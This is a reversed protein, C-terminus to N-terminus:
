LGLENLLEAIRKYTKRNILKNELLFDLGQKVAGAFEGTRIYNTARLADFSSKLRRNFVIEAALKDTVSRAGELAANMEAFPFDTRGGKPSRLPPIIFYRSKDREQFKVLYASVLVSAPINGSYSAASNRAMVKRNEIVEKLKDSLEKTYDKIIGKQEVLTSMERDRNMRMSDVESMASEKAREYEDIAAQKNNLHTQTIGNLTKELQKRENDIEKVKSNIQSVQSKSKNLFNRIISKYKPSDTSPLNQLINRSDEQLPTIVGTLGLTSAEFRSLARYIAQNAKELDSDITSNMKEEITELKRDAEEQARSIKEAYETEIVTERDHIEGMWNQGLDRIIERIEELRNIEQISEIFMPNIRDEFSPLILPADIMGDQLKSKTLSLTSKTFDKNFIPYSNEELMLSENAEIVSETFASLSSADYIAKLHAEIKALSLDHINYGKGYLGLSDVVITRGEFTDFFVRWYLKSVQALRERSRKFLSGKKIIDGVVGVVYALEAEVPFQYNKESVIFPIVYEQRVSLYSM